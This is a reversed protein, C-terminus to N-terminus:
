DMESLGEGSTVFNPGVLRPRPLQLFAFFRRGFSVPGALFGGGPALCGVFSGSPYM